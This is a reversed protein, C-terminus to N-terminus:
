VESTKSAESTQSQSIQRLRPYARVVALYVVTGLSGILVQVANFPVETAAKSPGGWVPVLYEGIFYGVIVILGGVITAIVLSRTNPRRMYIWGAVFGQVGHVVLSLPAFVAYPGSLLDALATGLGGAVLGVWPGLAFAAFFIGVDGLHNYGVPNPVASRTLALVLATMVGTLALTRPNNLDFKM